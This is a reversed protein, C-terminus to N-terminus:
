ADPTGPSKALNANEIFQEILRCNDEIENMKDIQRDTAEGMEFIDHIREYKKRFEKLPKVLVKALREVESPELGLYNKLIPSIDSEWDRKWEM